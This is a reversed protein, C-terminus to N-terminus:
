YENRSWWPKSEADDLENGFHHKYFNADKVAWGDMAKKDRSRQQAMFANATDIDYTQSAPGDCLLKPRKYCSSYSDKYAHWMEYFPGYIDTPAPPPEDVSADTSPSEASQPPSSPLPGEAPQQIAGLTLTSRKRTLVLLNIILSITLVAIMPSPSIIIIMIIMIVTLLLLSM